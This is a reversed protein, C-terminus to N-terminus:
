CVPKISGDPNIDTKLTTGIKHMTFSAESDIEFAHNRAISENSFIGVFDGNVYLEVIDMNM